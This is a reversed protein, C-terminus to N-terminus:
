VRIFGMNKLKFQIQNRFSMRFPNQIRVPDEISVLSSVRKFQTKNLNRMNM